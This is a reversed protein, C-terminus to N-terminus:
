GNRRLTSAIPLGPVARFAGLSLHNVGEDIRSEGRPRCRALEPGKRPLFVIRM